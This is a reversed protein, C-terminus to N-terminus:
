QDGAVDPDYAPDFVPDSRYWLGWGAAFVGTGAFLLVARLWALHSEPAVLDVVVASFSVLPGVIWGAVASRRM